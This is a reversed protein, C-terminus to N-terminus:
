EGMDLDCAMSERSLYQTFMLQFPDNRQLITKNKQLKLVQDPNKTKNYQMVYNTVEKAFNLMSIKEFRWKLSQNQSQYM